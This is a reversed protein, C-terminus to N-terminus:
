LFSDSQLHLKQRKAVEKRKKLLKKKVHRNFFILLLIPIVLTVAWSVGILTILDPFIQGIMSIMVGNSFAFNGSFLANHFVEEFMYKYDILVCLAIVLFVGGLAGFTIFPVKRSTEYYEKYRNLIFFLFAVCVLFCLLTLILGVGFINKVDKMHAVEDERFIKLYEGDVTVNIDDELWLCYRIVHMMLDELQQETMNEVYRVVNQNYDSNDEMLSAQSQVWDLTKHKEFQWHYFAKSNAPIMIAIFGIVIFMAITAFVTFIRYVIKRKM